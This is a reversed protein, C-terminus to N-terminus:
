NYKCKNMKKKYLIIKVNNKLLLYKMIVFSKQICFEVTSFICFVRSYQLYLIWCENLAYAQLYEGWDNSMKIRDRFELLAFFVISEYFKKQKFLSKHPYYTIFALILTWGLHQIILDIWLYFVTFQMKTSVLNGDDFNTKDLILHPKRWARCEGPIDIVHYDYSNIKRKIGFYM